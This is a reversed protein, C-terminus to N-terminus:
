KIARARMFKKMDSRSLFEIAYSDLGYSKLWLLLPNSADIHSVEINSSERNLYTKLSIKEGYGKRGYKFVKIRM